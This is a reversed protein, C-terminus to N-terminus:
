GSSHVWLGACECILAQYGSCKPRHEGFLPSARQWLLFAAGGRRLDHVMHDGIPVGILVSSLMDIFYAIHDKGVLKKAECLIDFVQRPTIKARKVLDDKSLARVVGSDIWTREM